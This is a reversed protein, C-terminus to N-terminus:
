DAQLPLCSDLPYTASMGLLMELFPNFEAKVTPPNSGVNLIVVAEPIEAAADSYVKDSVEEAGEWTEFYDFSVGAVKCNDIRWSFKFKGVNVRDESVIFEIISRPIPTNGCHSTFGKCYYGKLQTSKEELLATGEHTILDTGIKEPKTNNVSVKVQAVPECNNQTKIYDTSNEPQLIQMQAKGDSCRDVSTYVKGGYGGGNGSDQSVNKTKSNDSELQKAQTCNQVAITFATLLAIGLGIKLCRIKNRFKVRFALM